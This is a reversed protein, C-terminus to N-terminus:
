LIRYKRFTINWKRKRKEVGNRGTQYKVTNQIKLIKEM